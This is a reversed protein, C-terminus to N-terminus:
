GERLADLRRAARVLAEADARRQKKAADFETLVFRTSDVHGGYLRFHSHKIALVLTTGVPRGESRLREAPMEAERSQEIFSATVMMHARVVAPWQEFEYAVRATLYVTRRRTYTSHEIMEILTPPGPNM